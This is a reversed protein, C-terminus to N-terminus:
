RAEATIPALRARLFALLPARHGEESDWENDLNETLHHEGVLVGGRYHRVVPHLYRGDLGGTSDKAARGETIDFPDVRDHGEGYELTVALYSDVDGFEGRGVAEHLHDLPVEEAYRFTGDRGLLVADALFSFMQWLASTRNVRAIVADAVAGPTPPLDAGPWPVRHYRHELLRHLARVGYRFGHIFGSTSKKFDRAQTITGAFFLDPVNVSEWAATQGPFRDNITLEPRCEPAFISADFRFGTALIVRDYRIEKVRDGVRAFAVRVAYEDGDRRIGAIRGDLVANQSKLQYTDLFNNNVARLHGVFHTRWALKLSGPGAVHIVAATEILNDATEFASNGRGIILVRQGTFDAPDVSVEDYREAHEVGEIPPVYPKTVGTAVILRRARYTDGRQDRVVFDDPRTISVVRVGCRVPLDLKTAFDALYRVMVEAPPFYRPTYGTFLLSPDDSLLSNWDVRLNLEPDDWGTHVKNSSILTRHRPFRTFFAGPADGAELVLHDRGARSLLHSAQLGAPGAGIVLYETSIESPM